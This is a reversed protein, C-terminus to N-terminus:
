KVLPRNFGEVIDVIEQIVDPYDCLEILLDENVEKEPKDADELNHESIGYKVVAKLYDTSKTNGTLLKLVKRKEASELGELFEKTKAGKNGKEAAGNKKNFEEIKDLVEDPLSDYISVTVSNIEEAGVISFKQPIIYFEKEGSLTELVQKEGVRKRLIKSKARKDLM